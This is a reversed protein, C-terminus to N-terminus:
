NIRARTNDFRSLLYILSDLNDVGKTIEDMISTNKVDYDIFADLKNNADIFEDLEDRATMLHATIYKINFKDEPNHM